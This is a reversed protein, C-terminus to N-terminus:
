EPEGAPKGFFSGLFRMLHGRDDLGPFPEASTVEVDANTRVDVAQRDRDQQQHREDRGQYLDEAGLVHAAVAAVRVEEGRQRQERSAHERHHQGGVHDLQNEAPFDHAQAGEHEDTVPPFLSGVALRRELREPCHANAVHAQEDTGTCQQKREVRQFDALDVFKGGVSLPEAGLAHDGESSHRQEDGADALAALERQVGPQRVRHSARRGDARQQVGARHDHGAYEQNGAQIRDEVNAQVDVNGTLLEVEDRHDTADRDENRSTQCEHLVVDLLHQRVASDALESVHHQAEAHACPGARHEVDEGM